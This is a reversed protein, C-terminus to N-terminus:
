NTAQAVASNVLSPTIQTIVRNWKTVPQEAVFIIDNPRLEFRTALIFNTADRGDLQWATIAGFERPDPSGRLVYIESVDGTRTSVGDNGYLADALSAARGFPLPYRVQSNVEGTLYVYDRDVSDLELRAM